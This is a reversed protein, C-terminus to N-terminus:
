SNEFNEFICIKYIKWVKSIDPLGHLDLYKRYECAHTWFGGFSLSSYFFLQPPVDAVGGKVRKAM